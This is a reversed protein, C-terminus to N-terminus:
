LVLFDPNIILSTGYDKVDLFVNVPGIKGIYGTYIDSVSTNGIRFSCPVLQVYGNFRFIEILGYGFDAEMKLNLYLYVVKSRDLLCNPLEFYCPEEMSDLMFYEQNFDNVVQYGNLEEM